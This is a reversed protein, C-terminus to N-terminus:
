APSYVLPRAATSTTEPEKSVVYSRVIPHALRRLSASDIAASPGVANAQWGEAFLDDIADEGNLEAFESVVAALERIGDFSGLRNGSAASWLEYKM